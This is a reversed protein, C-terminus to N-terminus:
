LRGLDSWVSSATPPPSGRSVPRGPSREARVVTSKGDVTSAIASWVRALTRYGAMSQLDRWVQGLKEQQANLFKQLEGLVSRRKASLAKKPRRDELGIIRVGCKRREEKSNKRCCVTRTTHLCPRHAHCARAPVTCM